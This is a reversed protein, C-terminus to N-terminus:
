LTASSRTSHRTVVLTKAASPISERHSLAANARKTLRSKKRAGTNRHVIGKQALKDLQKVADVFKEPAYDSKHAMDLALRIKATHETNYATRTKTKTKRVDGVSSRKIPMISQKTDESSTM